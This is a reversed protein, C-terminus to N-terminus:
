VFERRIFYEQNWMRELNIEDKSDPTFWKELDILKRFKHIGINHDSYDVLFYTVKRASPPIPKIVTGVKNFATNEIDTSKGKGEFWDQDITPIQKNNM